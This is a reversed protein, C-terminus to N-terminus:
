VAVLAPAVAALAAAFRTGPAAAAVARAAAIDDVDRLAPLVAPDLGLEALRARQATGTHAQSMPIGAFVAPDAARLGIAWYGGDPAPGLVAPARDLADLGAGLLEPTVQPTDMGVLLAPGNADAFAGALREALGGGRQPVIDWGEPLWPGPRGDLVLVRRGGAAAADCAALTDELSARALVAAEAYTCPPCLRTKVRGPVPAKAIVLLAPSV